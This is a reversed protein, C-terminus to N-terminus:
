ERLVFGVARMWVRVEDPKDASRKQVILRDLFLAPKDAPAQPLGAARIEDARLPSASSCSSRAPLRVPSSWTCPFRRWDTSATPPPPTPSCPRCRWRIFRLWRASSPPGCAPRRHAVPRGLAPCTTQRRRHTRPLQRLVAPAVAVQQQKALSGLEDLQKSRETEYDVLQSTTTCEPACRRAWNSAPPPRM